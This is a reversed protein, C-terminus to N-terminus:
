GTQPELSSPEEEVEWCTPLTLAHNTWQFGNFYAETPGPGELLELPGLKEGSTLGNNEVEIPEYVKEQDEPDEDSSSLYHEQQSDSIKICQKIAFRSNTQLSKPLFEVCRPLIESQCEEDPVKDETADTEQLWNEITKYEHVSNEFFDDTESQVSSKYVNSQVPIQTRKRPKVPPAQQRPKPVPPTNVPIKSPKVQDFLMNEYSNLESKPIKLEVNEYNNQKERSESVKVNEYNNVELKVVDQRIDLQKVTEAPRLTNEAQINFEQELLTFPKLANALQQSHATKLDTTDMIFRDIVTSITSGTDDSDFGRAYDDVTNLYFDAPPPVNFLDEETAIPYSVTGPEPYSSNRKLVKRPPAQPPTPPKKLSSSRGLAREPMEIKGTGHRVFLKIYVDSEKLNKVCELRSMTNVPLGNIKLIEDGEGLSGWSASTRSAPSVFM